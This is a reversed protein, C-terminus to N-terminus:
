TKKKVKIPFYFEVGKKILHQNKKLIEDKFNWALVYYIDPIQKHNKELFIPIHSGPSFLNKRMPNIEILKKIQDKKIGFYNLLTNGKAPAGLGYIIKKQNISKNLFNMNIKKLLNIKNSFKKYTEKKNIKSSIESRIYKKLLSTKIKKRKKCVYATMQGGHINSLKVDFIELGYIKLLNNLTKLNYYLLHEHYIQDFATNEIISKMYLFQIIFVGDEKLLYEVGKTVSHLEELHFFVGSANIFDFKKNIKKALSYNFFKNLTKIGSKNAIKAIRKAPEVGLVEWKIARFHKLFTGDNSGIDLITKATKIKFKKIVDDRLNKFHASLSNTVGSLYTHDSFM